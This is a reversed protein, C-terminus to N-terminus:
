ESPSPRGDADEVAAERGSVYARLADSNLVPPRVDDANNAVGDPGASFVIGAVDNSGLRYKYFQGWPDNRLLSVYPGDWFFLGPNNLLAVLGEKESPYRKCDQSFRALGTQLVGLERLAINKQIAAVSQLPSPSCGGPAGMLCAVGVIVAIALGMAFMPRQALVLGAVAETASHLRTQAREHRSNCRSKGRAARPLIAVRGCQPCCLGKRDEVAFVAKCYLCKVNM